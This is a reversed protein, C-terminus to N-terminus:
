AILHLKNPCGGLGQCYFFIDQNPSHKTSERNTLLICSVCFILKLPDKRSIYQSKMECKNTNNFIFRRTLLIIWGMIGEM